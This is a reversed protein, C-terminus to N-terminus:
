NRDRFACDTLGHRKRSMSKSPCKTEGTGGPPGPEVSGGLPLFLLVCDSSSCCFFRWCLTVIALLVYQIRLRLCMWCMKTLFTELSHPMVWLQQCHFNNQQQLPENSEREKLQGGKGSPGRTPVLESLTQLGWHM